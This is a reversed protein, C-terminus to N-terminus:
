DKRVEFKFKFGKTFYRVAARPFKFPSVVIHLIRSELSVGIAAFLAIPGLLIYLEAWAPLPHNEGLESLWYGRILCLGFWGCILWLFIISLITM